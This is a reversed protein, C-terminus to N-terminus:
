TRFHSRGLTRARGCTRRRTRSRSNKWRLYRPLFAGACALCEDTLRRCHRSDPHSPQDQSCRRSRRPGDPRTCQRRRRRLALRRRRSTRSPTHGMRRHTHARTAFLMKQPSGCCACARDAKGAEIRRESKLDKLAKVSSGHHARFYSVIIANVSRARVQSVKGVVGSSM